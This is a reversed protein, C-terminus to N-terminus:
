ARDLRPHNHLLRLHAYTSVDSTETVNLARGTASIGTRIVVMTALISGIGVLYFLGSGTLYFGGNSAIM